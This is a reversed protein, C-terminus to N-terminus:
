DANDAAVNAVHVFLFPIPFHSNFFGVGRQVSGWHVFLNCIREKLSSGIQGVLAEALVRSVIVNLPRVLTKDTVPSPTKPTLTHHRHM